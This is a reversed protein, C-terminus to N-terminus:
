TVVELLETTLKQLHSFSLAVIEAEGRESDGELRFHEPFVRTGRDQMVGVLVGWFVGELNECSLNWDGRLVLSVGLFTSKEGPLDRM